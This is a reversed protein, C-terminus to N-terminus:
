RPQTTACPRGTNGGGGPEVLRGGLRAANLIEIITPPGLQPDWPRLEMVPPKWEGRAEVAALRRRAAELRARLRQEFETEVPMWLNELRRLRRSLSRVAPRGM